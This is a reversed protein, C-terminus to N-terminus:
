AFTAANSRAPIEGATLTFLVQNVADAFSDACPQLAELATPDGYGYTVLVCPMGMASAIAHDLESDGVYVCESPSVELERTVLELLAPHPKLPVGARAGVISAFASNLGVDGLVKDCLHQPKNSCVGLVVNAARLRELGEPVGPFVSDRPTGCAAYRARFDAVDTDPDRADGALLAAVMVKGGLSAYPRAEADRIQRPAGRETLMEDIVARIVTLSDLLTGDLDFIACRRM